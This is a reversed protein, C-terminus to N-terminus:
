LGVEWKKVKQKPMNERRYWALANRKEEEFVTKDNQYLDSEQNYFDIVCILYLEYIYDFPAPMLLEQTLSPYMNKPQEKNMMLAIEGEEKILWEYKQQESFTNPRLEDAKKIAEFANM